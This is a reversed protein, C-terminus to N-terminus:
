HGEKKPKGSVGVGSVLDPALVAPLTLRLMELKLASLDAPAPSLALPAAAPAVVLLTGRRAAELVAERAKELKAREGATLPADSRGAGGDTFVSGKDGPPAAPATQGPRPALIVLLIALLALAATRPWPLRDLSRLPQNM